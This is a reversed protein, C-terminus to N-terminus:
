RYGFIEAWVILLILSIGIILAITGFLKFFKVIPEPMPEVLHKKLTRSKVLDAYERPRDEKLEEIPVRGSFIVTDMPFKDPRFHTNFFHVTFIFGVALLAEDSHIITAVNIIWGPLFRTFLEPFWLMLGTSGIIAVGWFVAFYDFKEWYTWRGYRPRPGLGIFWKFTATVDKLDNRNPLMSDKDTLYRYWSKGTRKKRRFLDIIHMGFYFFTIVACVRHIYGATEFGGLVHSIWQAWGLYSFKLTMGTIALGLFSIIVLIHLRRQLPTFRQFQLSGKYQQRMENHKKMTQFSRPLWLLTHTGAVVLTGTLLITMFWFTYFLIPYKDRDHHTAHTLYGAFQRHSGPHCSGCTEVINQRSLTSKPESPPLINHAGHCDYCKAAAEYGLKSVKGHFTEFYSETVESHCDGCHAMIEDRFGIKDTRKIAHSNHCTICKPLPKDTENILSCHISESFEEYIGKHCNSCMLTINDIFVSSKPDDKPLINHTTHCDTCKATVVLGSKKLGIGHIGNLYTTVPDLGEPTSDKVAVGHDSHCRGCLDPVNTPFTPSDEDIYRKINHTGHCTECTPVRKDGRDALKGHMSRDFTEVITPHCTSCDVKNIVTSCPRKHKPNAGTHCQACSTNRHISSNYEVSDVYMSVPGDERLATLDKRAHCSLCEDNAIGEEYFVRRIEHPQHCDVCAPVVNPEKEWLDGRIVKKHVEEIRGHCKQCTGAINNRHISSNPDTHPLVNHSTHCDNCVATVTLGQKFLGEGHISLSYHTLISDQPIDYTRTVPTGEKHCEGCIFPINFKAVRSKPSKVPVIDHAGHCSWCRPGLKGGANVVQGHLSKDYIDAIDDHCPSCDVPELKEDHPLEVDALDAHCDICDADGHVSNKYKDPNIYLSVEQGNREKTLETDEHCDLCDEVTQPHISPCILLFLIIFLHFKKM